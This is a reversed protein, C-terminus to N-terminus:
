DSVKSPDLVAQYLQAGAAFAFECNGEKAAEIAM